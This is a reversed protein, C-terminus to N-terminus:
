KKKGAKYSSSVKQGMGELLAKAGEAFQGTPELELYKNFNQAAEPPYKTTNTKQDYTGKQMLNVGKQYYAAAYNPNAAIAKDFATNADDPKGTNTFVVGENYYFQAAKTPDEEAAKNFANIADETKGSKGYASGLQNYYVAL